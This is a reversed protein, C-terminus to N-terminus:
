ILIINKKKLQKLKINKYLHVENITPKFRRAFDIYRMVEDLTYPTSLNHLNGSHLDIIRTAIATDIIENCEDVLVFFLDFRSMIPASM